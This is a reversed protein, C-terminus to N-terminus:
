STERAQLIPFQHRCGLRGTELNEDRNILTNWVLLIEAKTL